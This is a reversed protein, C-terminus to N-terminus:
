YIREYFYFDDNESVFTMCSELMKKSSINAKFCKAKISRLGAGFIAWESAAAFAERGYGNGAYEPFIRCGLEASGKLDAEYIVAEGIFKDDLRIAFNVCVRREFDDKAVQYFYDGPIQSPDGSYDERFDYGWLANNKEDLCLKQYTTSDEQRIESLVLRETKIEPIKDLYFLESHPLIVFKEVLRDPRYQLKSIRLGRDSADEERNVWKVNEGAFHKLFESVLLPYIGCYKVLAKEIHIIMRDGCIEAASIAVIKGDLEICGALLGYKEFCNQMMDIAVQKEMLALNSTKDFDSYFENWFQGLDEDPQLERFKWNPYQSLFKNIHNRQGAYHRGKFFKLNEATYIYDNAERSNEIKLYNYRSTFRPLEDRPIDSFVPFVENKSCYSDIEDLAGDIEASIDSLTKGSSYEPVPFEFVTNEGDSYKIILCNNSIAYEYFYYRSWFIKTACSYECSEYKCNQYYKRLIESSEPSVPIFNLM